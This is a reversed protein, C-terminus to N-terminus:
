LIKQVNSKLALMDYSPPYVSSDLDNWLRSTRPIFSNRFHDTRCFKVRVTNPHSQTANHTRVSPNSLM